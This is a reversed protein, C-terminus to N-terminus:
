KKATQELKQLLLRSFTNLNLVCILKELTNVSINRQRREVVSIYSRDLRTRDSFEEQTIGINQRQEVLILAIIPLLSKTM